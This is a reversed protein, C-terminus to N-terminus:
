LRSPRSQTAEDEIRKWFNTFRKLPGQYSVFSQEAIWEVSFAALAGHIWTMPTAQTIVHSVGLANLVEATVGRYVEIDPIEAVCDAIFQLRKLALHQQAITDTDFVFIRRSDPFATLLPHAPSLMEDHFYVISTM